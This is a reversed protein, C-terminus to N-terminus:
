DQYYDIGCGSNGNISELEQIFFIFSLLSLISGVMFMEHLKIAGVTFIVLCFVSFLIGRLATKGKMESINPTFFQNNRRISKIPTQRLDM